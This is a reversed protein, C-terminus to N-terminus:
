ERFISIIVGSVGDAAQYDRYELKDLDAKFGHQLAVMSATMGIHIPNAYDANVQLLARQLPFGPALGQLARQLHTARGGPPERNVLLLMLDARGDSAPLHTAPTPPAAPQKAPKDAQGAGFLKQWWTPDQAARPTDLTNEHINAGCKPCTFHRVNKARAAKYACPQCSVKGCIHCRRGVKRLMAVLEPDDPSGIVPETPPPVVDKHCFECQAM